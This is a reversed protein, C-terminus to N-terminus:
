ARLKFWRKWWPLARITEKTKAIERRKEEVATQWTALEEIADSASMLGTLLKAHITFEIHSLRYSLFEDYIPSAEDM